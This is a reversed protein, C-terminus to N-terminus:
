VFVQVRGHHKDNLMKWAREPEELRNNQLHVSELDKLKPNALSKPVAGTLDNSWIHVERLAWCRGLKDGEFLLPDCRALSRCM